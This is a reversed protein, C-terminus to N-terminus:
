IYFKKRIDVLINEMDQHNLDDPLNSTEFAENMKEIMREAEELLDDFEYDGKKISLLKKADKRKVNIGRGKGIEMAMSILRYCHSMNKGDYGKGHKMTSLYRYENRKEVWDWYEKYKRCNKAYEDKSFYMMFDPERKKTISSLSVDNSLENKEIGEYLDGEQAVYAGYLNKMHSLKVLGVDRQTKGPHKMELYKEVEISGQKYSVFCCDVIGKRKAPVPNSIKKNLGRARKIQKSAYEGFTKMCRKSLFSDRKSLIEDFLPDKKLIMDDSVNIMELATPNSSDLMKIFKGIEFYVVDNKEDAIQEPRNLGFFEDKSCIFVGKIDIDSYEDNTGYSVSGAICSFIVKRGNKEIKEELM